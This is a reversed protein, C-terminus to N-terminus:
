RQQRTPLRDSAPVSAFIRQHREAIARAESRTRRGLAAASLVSSWPVSPVLSLTGAYSQDLLYALSRRSSRSRSGVAVDGGSAALRVLRLRPLIRQIAAEAEWRPDIPGCLDLAVDFDWEEATRRLSAMTALHARNGELDRPRLVLTVRTRPGVGDQLRLLLPRKDRDGIPRLAPEREVLLQRVDLRDALGLWDDVLRDARAGTTRLSRTGPLWLSPIPADPVAQVRGGKGFGLLIVNPRTALDLDLGDMGAERAAVALAQLPLWRNVRSSLVLSPILPWQSM